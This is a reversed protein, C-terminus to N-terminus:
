ARVPRSAPGSLPRSGTGSPRWDCVVAPGFSETLAYLHTVEVGLVGLRALLAPSPPAGGTAVRVPREFRTADPHNALSILVTPAANCHTVRADRALRWIGAPDARRLCVHTA